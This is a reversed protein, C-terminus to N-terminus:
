AATPQPKQTLIAAQLGTPYMAVALQQSFATPLTLCVRGQLLSWLLEWSVGAKRFHEAENYLMCATDRRKVSASNDHAHASRALLVRMWLNRRQVPKRVHRRRVLSSKSLGDALM